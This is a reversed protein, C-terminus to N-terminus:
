ASCEGDLIEVKYEHDEGLDVYDEKTATEPTMAELDSVAARAHNLDVRFFFDAANEGANKEKEYLKLLREIASTVRRAPIKAALRGFRAGGGEAIGGGLLVFYQPLVRKGLQRVSGQFGIGAV